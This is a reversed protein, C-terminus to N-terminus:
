LRRRIHGGAQKERRQRFYAPCRRRHAAARGAVHPVAARQCTCRQSYLVHVLAAERPTRAADLLRLVDIERLSRRHKTDPLKPTSLMVAPNMALYGTRQAFSFLSRVAASKAKVTAPAGTLATQWAQLHALTVAQLPVAVAQSFQRWTRAYTAQTNASKDESQLWMAVLRADTTDTPVIAYTGTNTHTVALANAM